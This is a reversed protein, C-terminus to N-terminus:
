ESELSSGVKYAKVAMGHIYNSRILNTFLKDDDYPQELFHPKHDHSWEIYREIIGFRCTPEQQNDYIMNSTILQRHVSNNPNNDNVIEIGARPWDKMWEKNGAPFAGTNIVINGTVANGYNPGFRTQGFYLSIGALSASRISNNAITNLRSGHIVKIGFHYCNEIANNAVVCSKCVRMDIGEGVNRIINNAIVLNNCLMPSIGDTQCSIAKLSEPTSELNEIRNGTVQGFSCRVLSIGLLDVATGSPRDKTLLDNRCDHVFCDTVSFRHCSQLDIAPVSCVGTVNLQSLRFDSANEIIIAPQESQSMWEKELSIGEIRINSLEEQPTTCILLPQDELIALTGIGIIGSHSPIRLPKSILYRGVPLYIPGRGANLATQLATTNDFKNDGVIGSPVFFAPLQNQSLVENCSSLLLWALILPLRKTLSASICALM